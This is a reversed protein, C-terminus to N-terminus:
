ARTECRAQKIKQGVPIMNKKNLLCFNIDIRCLHKIDKAKGFVAGVLRRCLCGMGGYTLIFLDHDKMEKWGQFPIFIIFPEQLPNPPFM